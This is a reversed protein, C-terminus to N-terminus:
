FYLDDVDAQLRAFDSDVRAAVQPLVDRAEDYDFISERPMTDQPACQELIKARLYAPDAMCVRALLLRYASRHWCWARRSSECTCDLGDTVQVVGAQRRSWSTIRLEVGDFEFPVGASLHDVARDVARQGAADDALQLRMASALTVLTADATQQAVTPATM